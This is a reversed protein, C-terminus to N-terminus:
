PRMRNLEALVSPLSEASAVQQTFSKEDILSFRAIIEGQHRVVVQASGEAPLQVESWAFSAVHTPSTVPGTWFEVAENTSVLVMRDIARASANLFQVRTTSGGRV